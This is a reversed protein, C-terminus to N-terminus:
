LEILVVPPSTPQSSGAAPEVTLSIRDDPTVGAVVMTGGGARGAATGTMMGAPRSGGPTMLWVEYRQAGPLPRLHAAILVLMGMRHSMVLTVTGGTSVRGSRMSADPASLVAAVAHDRGEAQSLRHQMGAYSVAGLAAAAVAATAAVTLALRRAGWLRPLRTLGSPWRL